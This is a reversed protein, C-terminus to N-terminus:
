GVYLAKGAGGDSLCAQLLSRQTTESRSYHFIHGYWQGVPLDAIQIFPALSMERLIFPIFPALSM